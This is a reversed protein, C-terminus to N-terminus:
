GLIATSEEALEGIKSTVKRVPKEIISAIVAQRYTPRNATIM